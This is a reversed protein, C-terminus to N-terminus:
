GVQNTRELITRIPAFNSNSLNSNALPSQVKTCAAFGKGMGTIHTLVRTGTGWFVKDCSFCTYKTNNGVKELVNAYDAVKFSPKPTMM